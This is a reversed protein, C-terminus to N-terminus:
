LSINTFQNYRSTPLTSLDTPIQWFDPNSIDGNIRLKSSRKFLPNDNLPNIKSSWHIVGKPDIAGSSYQQNFGPKFTQEIIRVNYTNKEIQYFYNQSMPPIYYNGDLAPRVTATNESFGVSPTRFISTSTDTNLDVLVISRNVSYPALLWKNDSTLCGGFVGTGGGASEVLNGFLIATKTIINFKIGVGPQFGDAVYILGSPSLISATFSRNQITYTKLTLNYPNIEAVGGPFGYGFMYINGDQALVGTLYKLGATGLDVEIKGFIDLIEDYYIIFRASSPMYFIKNNASKIGGQYTGSTFDLRYGKINILGTNLDEITFLLTGDSDFTPAYYIKTGDTSLNTGNNFDFSPAYYYKHIVQNQNVFTRHFPINRM